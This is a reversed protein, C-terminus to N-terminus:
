QFQIDHRSYKHHLGSIFLVAGLSVQLFKLIGCYPTILEFGYVLEGPCGNVLGGTNFLM